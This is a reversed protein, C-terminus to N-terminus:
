KCVVVPSTTWSVDPSHSDLRSCVVLLIISIATVFGGFMFRAFHPILMTGM